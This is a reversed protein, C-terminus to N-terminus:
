LALGIHDALLGVEDAYARRRTEVLQTVIGRAYGQHRLWAPAAERVDLLTEIAESPQHRALHSAAVDLQHRHRNNATPLDSPPVREALALAKGHEGVLVANEVDKYAVTTECFGAVPPPMWRQPAPEDGLRAAATRAMRMYDEADATRADRVAASSARVMLWGWTALKPSPPESMRPEIRDATLTALQEVERFRRQLLLTWCQVTVVWAALLDDGTSQALGMAKDLSHNALDLQRVQTLMQAAYLHAQALPYVNTPNAAHIARAEELLVPVASLVADYRDEAYLREAYNLTEQWAQQSTPPAPEALSIGLPPTLARRIALLADPEPVTVVQTGPAPVLLDSTTVGLARALRNLTEMRGGRTGREISKVASASLGAAEALQEQTMGRRYRYRAVAEGASPITENM